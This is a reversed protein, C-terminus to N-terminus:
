KHEKERAPAQSASAVLKISENSTVVESREFKFTAQELVFTWVDDCGRFYDVKGKITAKARVKTRFAESLSKDFEQLTRAAVQPEISGDQVMDDLTDILAQGISSQQYFIQSSM